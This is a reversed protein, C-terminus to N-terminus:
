AFDRVTAGDALTPCLQNQSQPHRSAALMELARQQLTGAWVDIRTANAGLRACAPNVRLTWATLLVLAFAVIFAAAFLTPGWVAEFDFAALTAGSRLTLRM